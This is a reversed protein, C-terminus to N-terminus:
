WRLGRRSASLGVSQNVLSASLSPVSLSCAEYSTETALGFPQRAMVTKHQIKDKAKVHQLTVKAEDCHEKREAM